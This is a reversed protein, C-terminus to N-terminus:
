CPLVAGVFGRQGRIFEEAATVRKGELQVQRLGLIGDGTQVGVTAPQSRELAVV